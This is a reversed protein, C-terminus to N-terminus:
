CRPQHCPSLGAAAVPLFRLGWCFSTSVPFATLGLLHVGSTLSSEPFRGPPAPSKPSLRASPRLPPMLPLARSQARLPQSPDVGGAPPGTPGGGVQPGLSAEPASEWLKHEFPTHSPHPSPDLVAGQSAQLRGPHHCPTSLGLLRSTAGSWAQLWVWAQLVLMCARLAWGRAGLVFLASELERHVAKNLEPTRWLRGGAQRAVWHDGAARPPPGGTSM